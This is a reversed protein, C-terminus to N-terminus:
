SPRFEEVYAPEGLLELTAQTGGIVVVDGASELRLEVRGKHNLPIPIMNDFMAEDTRIYGDDLDRPLDSFSGNVSANSIRLKAPQTWGSGPDRGPRGDSSHIYVTSFSLVALGNEISLGDLVSDHIEIARNQM